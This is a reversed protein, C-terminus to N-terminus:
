KKAVKAPNFAAFQDTALKVLDTTTAFVTKTYRIHIRV